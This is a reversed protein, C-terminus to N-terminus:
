GYARRLIGEAQAALHEYQNAIRLLEDRVDAFIFSEAMSTLRDAERRYFEAPELNAPM